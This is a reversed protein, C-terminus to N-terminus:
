LIPEPSTSSRLYFVRSRIFRVVSAASYFASFLFGKELLLNQFDWSHFVRGVWYGRQSSFLYTASDLTILSGLFQPSNIPLISLGIGIFSHHLRMLNQPTETIWYYAPFLLSLAANTAHFLTAGPDENLYSKIALGLHILGLSAYELFVVLHTQAPLFQMANWPTLLGAHKAAILLTFIHAGFFAVACAVAVGGISLGVFLAVTRYIRPRAEEMTENERKTVADTFSHTLATLLQHGKQLHEKGHLFLEGVLCITLLAIPLAMTLPLLTLPIVVGLYLVGSALCLASFAIFLNKALRIQFERAPETSQQTFNRLFFQKCEGGKKQLLSPDDYLKKGLQVGEYVLPAGVAIPLISSRYNWVISTLDISM